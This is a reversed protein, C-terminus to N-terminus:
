NPGADGAPQKWGQKWRVSRTCIKGKRRVRIM